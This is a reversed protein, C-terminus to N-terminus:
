PAPVEHASGGPWVSSILPGIDAPVARGAAERERAFDMLARALGVDAREALGAVNALPIGCFVCKLVAQRYEAAGLYRAAYEGLAASILRRDNTRIADAVIALAGEGFDPRRGLLTLARLVGRREAADGHRYLEGATALLRPGTLPLVDLLLSRIGDDVTWGALAGDGLGLPARGCCRGVAPFLDHIADPAATVRAAAEQYWRAAAAPLMATILSRLDASTM